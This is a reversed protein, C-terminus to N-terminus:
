RFDFMLNLRLGEDGKKIRIIGPQSQPGHQSIPKFCRIGPIDLLFSIDGAPFDPMTNIGDQRGHPEEPTFVRLFIGDSAAYVTFPVTPSQLTAWYFNAHYGKFEPYVLRDTSEGTITNNYDKQWVGYNAGPIRNKWVRYPGRGMWRMGSCESEPYSFTLGLNLVETDTFADDFGGGGSARNLLVADMSLLGAPTLRWVISDAAGRYRACLVADGSETRASLNSLIMKMGVAVPGDKLPIVRNDANRVVSTITADSKRFSVTVAPSHLTILTDTEEVRCNGTVSTQSASSHANAELEGQLYDKAYHIPFTRTCISEGDVGYAELELIDGEFLKPATIRAFGTEGPVLSPLQVMGSDVVQRWTQAGGDAVSVPSGVAEGQLPSACHLVRWRMSCKDLNTFLFRNSVRFEGRFSPTIMLPEVYIPSWVERVSYYSGEKERYPGLIGDPANYDESDLAGGRDSRRVAEDSYAWMFGGAFLPHATYRAWFDELGAGHGQDYQGHMFEAPMFVKYGNTFRAVGTLYAPYHHTDLEDFDAWPHIVHRKQPDYTRFLSDIATNWGGENGNSWLVICPHNVDRTLMERVLRTGTPTDYADQWGALEDIYLLGLSDCADLFHEDPPYHSRVANMNMEKILKVDQISLEKNTTRGGDPHFTHRNIGKMVLKTGNLYLGDRPRFDITRFGIRTDMSHIVNGEKGLLSVTLRYLVPSEPTWPSIGDFHATLLQISDKAVKVPRHGADKVSIPAVEMSLSEEGTTGQLHVEVKLEGDARADVALREIHTAPKAELWVPRYIGGFLWWDAKREAANISKNDSHKKVRVEIQNNSGFKLLDTVDYSFRYFGGQHVPGASQGNVFVETDTMVGGFWLRVNQGQWDRPVRFSRKYTGEEMSPNKVGPKKYWRGYTYEGFGQLEWQSPVEIKSWRGSNNGESVRFQWTVTNGLGTGSLYQRETEQAQVVWATLLFLITGLFHKRSM